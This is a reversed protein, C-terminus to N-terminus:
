RVGTDTWPTRVYIEVSYCPYPYGKLAMAEEVDHALATQVACGILPLGTERSMAEAFPVADLVTEVRTDGMLHGNSIIGTAKLGTAKQIEELLVKAQNVTSSLPRYRNVVYLMDYDMSKIKDALSGLVASGADDGGADIIVVKDGSFISQVAAPIMPLDITTRAYTPAILEIGRHELVEPYDSARFYPNVIDMDVLTTKKGADRAQVAMNIALNTKGCGYHGCIITFDKVVLM